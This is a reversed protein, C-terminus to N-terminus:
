AGDEGRHPSPRGNARCPSAVRTAQGADLEERSTTSRPPVLPNFVTLAATYRRSRRPHWHVLGELVGSLLGHHPPQMSLRSSSPQRRPTAPSRTLPAMRGDDCRRAKGGPDAFPGVRDGTRILTPDARAIQERRRRHLCPIAWPIHVVSPAAKWVTSGHGAREGSATAPVSAHVTRLM